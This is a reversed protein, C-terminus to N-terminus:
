RAPSRPQDAGLDPGFPGAEDADVVPVAYDSGAQADADSAAPDRLALIGGAAIALAGAIGQPTAPESFV